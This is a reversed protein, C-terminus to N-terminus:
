AHRTVGKAVAWYVVGFLFAFWLIQLGISM